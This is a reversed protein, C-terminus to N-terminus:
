SVPRVHTASDNTFIDTNTFIMKKDDNKNKDIPKVNKILKEVTKIYREPIKESKLKDHLLKLLGEQCRIAPLENFCFFMHPQIEHGKMYNASVHTFRKWFDVHKKNWVKSNLLLSLESLFVKMEDYSYDIAKRKETGQDNNNNMRRSFEQLTYKNIYSQYLKYIPVNNSYQKDIVFVHGPFFATQKTKDRAHPLVANTIMMFYVMRKKDDHLIRSSAESVDRKIVNGVRTNTLGSMRDKVNDVYCKLSGDIAKMGCLLYFITVSTYLCKTYVSEVGLKKLDEKFIDILMNFHSDVLRGLNCRMRPM